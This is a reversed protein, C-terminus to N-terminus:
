SVEGCEDIIWDRVARSARRAAVDGEALWWEAPLPLAAAGIPRVLRGDSLADAALWGRELAVGQGAEAARLVLDSSTMRVGKRVDLDPPGVVDRWREWATSTDRNHLLPLGRLDEPRSPRGHADWAAPSMVPFAIDDGLDHIALSTRPRPGMRLTLDVAPDLPAKRMEDVAISVEVGQCAARLRDLRPLLWRTAISPPTCITVRRAGTDERMANAATQLDTMARLSADALALGQATLELRGGRVRPRVLPAGLWRELAALSRSVASHEVGLRRAAPRVGGEAHVAALARLHSLPLDRM